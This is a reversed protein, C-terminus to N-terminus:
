RVGCWGSAAGAGPGAMGTAPTLMASITPWALPPSSSCRPLPENRGPLAQSIIAAQQSNPLGHFHVHLDGRPAMAPRQPRSLEEAVIGDTDSREPVSNALESILRRRLRERVSRRIQPAQPSPPVADEVREIFFPPYDLDVVDGAQQLGPVDLGYRPHRETPPMRHDSHHPTSRNTSRTVRAFPAILGMPPVVGHYGDLYREYHM